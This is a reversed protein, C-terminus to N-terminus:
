KRERKNAIAPVRISEEYVEDDFTKELLFKYVPQYFGRSDMEYSIQVTKINYTVKEDSSIAGRFEGKLIKEYAEKESIIEYEKYPTCTVLNNHLSAIQNDIITCILSGDLIYGDMNLMNAEFSYNGNEMEEFIAETPISIDYGSLIDSVEDRALGKQPEGTGHSLEFNTYWTTLGDFNVWISYGGGESKYVVTNDYVDNQSEDVTAGVLAFFSKAVNLTDERTGVTAKYVYANRRETTCEESPVIEINKMNVKHNYNSSLNGLEKGSYLAFAVAFVGVTVLLPLQLFVLTRKGKKKKTIVLLVRILGYGIMAGLTNNIIDDVDCAGRRTVFQLLEIFLSACFGVVYTVWWKECKKLAVPMLFGFPVFMVINLVLHQAETKSENAWASKYSSFAHLNYGLEWGGRSGLTAGFVLIFYFILMAWICSKKKDLEKKEKLIVKYIVIYAILLVVLAMIGLIVYDIGISIMDRIRM